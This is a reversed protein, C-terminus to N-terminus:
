ATQDFSDVCRRYNGSHLASSNAILGKDSRVLLRRVGLSTLSSFLSKEVEIADEDPDETGPIKYDFGRPSPESLM